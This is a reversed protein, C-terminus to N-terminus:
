LVCKTKRSKFWSLRLGFLYIYFGWGFVPDGWTLFINFPTQGERWSVM